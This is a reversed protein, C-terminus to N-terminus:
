GPRLRRLARQAAREEKSRRRPNGRKPRPGAADTDTDRADDGEAAPQAARDLFAEASVVAVRVRRAANQIERDSTVVTAGPGRQRALRILVDDARDPPRSFVVRVRGDGAPPASIRAGDFVVVFEDHGERAVRAMLRLLGRRGEELSRRELGALEPDRRIVNYGDILWIM